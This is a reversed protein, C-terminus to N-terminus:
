GNGMGEDVRAAEEHLQDRLPLLDSKGKLWEDLAQDPRMGATIETERRRTTESRIVETRIEFAGAAELAQVFERQRDAMAQPIRLRVIAGAFEGQSFLEEAQAFDAAYDLTLLRRFPSSVFEPEAGLTHLYYGKDGDTEEAFSCAEPSGCYGVWPEENLVQRRHYHGACVPDFGLSAVEHINLTWESSLMALTNQKGAEATDFACHILLVCPLGEIRQDALGRAVAMMKERVLLNLDTPSLRRNEEDALLLAKNPWPICALQCAIDSSPIPGDGGVLNVAEPPWVTVTGGERTVWVNLLCPRDVVMLGPLEQLLDLAHCEALNRVDDHNGKIAV